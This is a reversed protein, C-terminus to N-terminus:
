EMAARADIIPQPSLTIGGSWPRDLDLILLMAMTLLLFLIATVAIHHRDEKRGLVYGVVGAAIVAFLSVVDLVRAPIRAEREAKRSSAADFMETTASALTAGIPPSMAPLAARLRQWVLTQAKATEAEVQARDRADPLRLRIDTYGKIAERLAAGEAGPALTARLWVTGIANGEAVITMRRSDYRSLALSFTFAILLGLLALAASLLHGDSDTDSSQRDVRRRVARGLQAMLLLLLFFPVGIVWLPASSLINELLAM